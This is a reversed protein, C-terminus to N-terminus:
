EGERFIGHFQDDDACVFATKANTSADSSTEENFNLKTRTVTLPKGELGSNIGLEMVIYKLDKVPLAGSGNDEEKIAIIYAGNTGTVSTQSHWEADLSQLSKSLTNAM